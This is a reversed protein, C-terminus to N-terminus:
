NTGVDFQTEPDAHLGKRTGGERIERQITEMGENPTFVLFTFRGRESSPNAQLENTRHGKKKGRCKGKRRTRGKVIEDTKQRGHM